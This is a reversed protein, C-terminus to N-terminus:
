RASGERRWLSRAAGLWQSAIAGAKALAPAEGFVAVILSKVVEYSTARYPFWSMESTATSEDLMVAKVRSFARLGEPGHYRGWGSEREGGFPLHPNAINLLVNNVACNGAVLARVVREARARDRTWVSANLGYRTGNALEIAEPESRFPMLPLVPGFTEETMVRMAHSVDRLVLPRFGNGVRERPTTLRAGKALADDLHAEVLDAQAPRILPGLDAARGSGVRLRRAAETVAAVFREYIPAEVYAREVSVCVQGANVFAGYVAGNVARDFPADAFVLMPDKGGLELELPTLQEAARAAIKKGTAVSGTFFIKDPRADVLAEGVEPGGQVVEVVGAPFGTRACLEQILAGVSPVVESPKLVVTNGAVLATVLPVMALQLPYNWPAIIGVVGLPEYDVRFSAHPALRHSPRPESALYNEASQEYHAIFDLTTYVDGALAELDPKGTAATVRAVVADLEEVIIARLRALLRLRERLPTNGWALSTARGREVAERVEGPTAAPFVGIQTGDVPSIPLLETRSM